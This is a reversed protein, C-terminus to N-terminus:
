DIPLSQSPCQPAFSRPRLHRTHLFLPRNLRFMELSFLKIDLSCQLCCTSGDGESVCVRKGMHQESSPRLLFAALARRMGHPAQQLQTESHATFDNIYFCAHAASCTSGKKLPEECEVEAGGRGGADASNETAYM